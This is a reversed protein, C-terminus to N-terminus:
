QKAKLATKTLSQYFRNRVWITQSPKTQHVHESFTGCFFTLSPIRCTNQSRCPMRQTTTAVTPELIPRSQGFTLHTIWKPGGMEYQATNALILNLLFPHLSNLQLWKSYCYLNQKQYDFCHWSFTSDCCPVTYLTCCPVTYMYAATLFSQSHLYFPAWHSSYNSHCKHM